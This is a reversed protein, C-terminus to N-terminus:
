NKLDSMRMAAMDKLWDRLSPKLLLIFISFLIFLYFKFFLFLFIFISFLIFFFVQHANKM